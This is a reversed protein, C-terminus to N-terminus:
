EEIARLAKRADVPREKVSIHKKVM